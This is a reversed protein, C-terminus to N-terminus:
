NALLMKWQRRDTVFLPAATFGESNLRPYSIRIAIQSVRPLCGADTGRREPEGGRAGM